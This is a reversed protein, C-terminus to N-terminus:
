MWIKVRENGRDIEFRNIDTLRGTSQKVLYEKLHKKNLHFDDSLQGYISLVMLKPFYNLIISIMHNEIKIPSYRFDFCIHNVGSFIRAICHIHEDTLNRIMTNEFRLCLILIRRHLLYFLMLSQDDDILLKHLCDFDISFAALNPAILLIKEICHSDPPTGQISLFDLRNLYPLIVTTKPPDEARPPLTRISIILDIIQRCHRIIGFTEALTITDYIHVHRVNRYIQSNLITSMNKNFLSRLALRNSQYSITHLFIRKDNESISYAIPISKWSNIISIPDFEDDTNSPQYCISYDFKKIWNPLLSLVRQGNTMSYDHSVLVLSINEIIPSSHILTKLDDFSSFWSMAYVYLEKLFSFRQQNELIRIWPRKFTTHLQEVNPILHNLQFFDKTTQLEIDLRIINPFNRQYVEDDPLTFPDCEHDFSVYTLCNDNAGLITQLLNLNKISDTLDLAQITLKHFYKMGHLKDIFLILKEDTWNVLTLKELSHYLLNNQFSTLFSPSELEFIVLSRISSAIQPLIISFIHTFQMYFTRHLSVHQRYFTITQNLRSNLGFFSYLVDGNHLYRCVQLLIEDPLM